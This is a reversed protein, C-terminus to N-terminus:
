MVTKGPQEGSPAAKRRCNEWDKLPIADKAPGNMADLYKKEPLM